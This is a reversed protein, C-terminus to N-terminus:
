VEEFSLSFIEGDIRIKDFIEGSSSTPEGDVEISAATRFQLKDDRRFLVLDDTWNRCQIHSQPQSGLVCSESMLVISDVAPDTKHHSELTLVATGSLAHPKRFRLKVADGLEILVGDNLVTPGALKVGDISVSHIPTIM